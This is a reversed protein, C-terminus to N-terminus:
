RDLTNRLFEHSLSAGDITVYDVSRFIECNVPKTIRIVREWDVADDSCSCGVPTGTAQGKKSESNPTSIDKAHLLYVRDRMKELGEYLDEIGALYSNGTDWNIQIWPSNVINIIKILGDVTKTYVGHPEICLFKRHRACMQAIRILTYRITDHAFDDDMWDPKMLLSHASLSAVKVGHRDCIGKV